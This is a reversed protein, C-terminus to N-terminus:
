REGNSHYTQAWRLLILEFDIPHRVECGKAFGVDWCLM